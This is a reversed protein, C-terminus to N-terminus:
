DIINVRRACEYHRYSRRMKRSGKSVIKQGDLIKEGCTPCTEGIPDDHGNDGAIYITIDGPTNPKSTLSGMTARGHIYTEELREKKVRQMGHGLDHIINKTKLINVTRVTHYKRM